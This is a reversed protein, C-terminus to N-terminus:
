SEEGKEKLGKKLKRWWLFLSLTRRKQDEKGGDMWGPYDEYGEYDPEIKVNEINEVKEVKNLMKLVKLEWDNFYSVNKWTIFGCDIDDMITRQNEILLEVDELTRNIGISVMFSLHKIQQRLSEADSNNIENTLRDLYKSVFQILMATTTMEFQCIM